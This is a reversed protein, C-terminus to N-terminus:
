KGLMTRSMTKEYFLIVSIINTRQNTLFGDIESRLECDSLSSLARYM